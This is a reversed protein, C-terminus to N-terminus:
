AAVPEMGFTARMDNVVAMVAPTPYYYERGRARHEILGSHIAQEDEYTGPMLALLGALGCGLHNLRDAVDTSYGIKITRDPLRAAYVVPGCERAIQRATAPASTNANYRAGAPRSELSNNNAHAFAHTRKRM